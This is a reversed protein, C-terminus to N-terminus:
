IGYFEDWKRMKYKESKGWAIKVKGLENRSDDNKWCGTYFEFWLISVLNRSDNRELYIVWVWLWLKADYISLQVIDRYQHQIVSAQLAKDKHSRATWRVVLLNLEISSKGEETCHHHNNTAPGCCLTVHLIYHLTSPLKNSGSSSIILIKLSRSSNRALQWYNQWKELIGM